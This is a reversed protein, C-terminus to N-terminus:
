CSRFIDEPPEPVRNIHVTTGRPRRADRIAAVGAPTASLMPPEGHTERIEPRQLSRDLVAPISHQYERAAGIAGEILVDAPAAFVETTM